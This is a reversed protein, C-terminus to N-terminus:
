DVDNYTWYRNVFFNWFLVAGIASALALNHALVEVNVGSAIPLAMLLDAFLGIAWVFIPTRIALGILNVLGYQLMQSGMPKSRSDPFTWYRNLIFNSSLAAVFSLVSATVAALGILSSFLNFVLFDVAAGIAGVISFRVFRGRERQSGIVSM